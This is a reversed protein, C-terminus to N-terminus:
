RAAESLKLLEASHMSLEQRVTMVACPCQVLFYVIAKVCHQANVFIVTRSDLGLGLTGDGCKTVVSQTKSPVEPRDVEGATGRAQTQVVPAM